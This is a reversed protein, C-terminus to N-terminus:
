EFMTKPKQAECTCLQFRYMSAPDSLQVHIKGVPLQTDIDLYFSHSRWCRGASHGWRVGRAVCVFCFAVHAKPKTPAAWWNISLSVVRCWEDSFGFPRVGIPGCSWDCVTHAEDLLRVRSNGTEGISLGLWACGFSCRVIWDDLILNFVYFFRVCPVFFFFLFFFRGGPVPDGGCRFRLSTARICVNICQHRSAASLVSM